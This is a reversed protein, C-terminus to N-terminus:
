PAPVARAALVFRLLEEGQDPTLKSKQAMREMLKPWRSASYDIPRYLQHCGACRAIYLSRAADLRPADMDPWTDRAHAVLEPTVRPIGGSCAALALLLAALVAVPLQLRPRM